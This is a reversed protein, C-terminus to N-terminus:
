FENDPLRMSVLGSTRVIYATNHGSDKFGLKYAYDLDLDRTVQLYSAELTTLQSALETKAKIARERGVASMIMDSIGYLYFILLAAVLFSLVWFLRQSFQFSQSITSM